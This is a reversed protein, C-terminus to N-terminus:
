FRLRDKEARESGDREQWGLQQHLGPKYDKNGKDWGRKKKEARIRCGEERQGGRDEPHRVGSDRCRWVWPPLRPIKGVNLMQQM